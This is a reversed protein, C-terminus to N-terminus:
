QRLRDVGGRLRQHGIIQGQDAAGMGHQWGSLGAAKTGDALVVPGSAVFYDATVPRKAADDISAPEPAAFSGMGPQQGPADLAEVPAIPPFSGHRL